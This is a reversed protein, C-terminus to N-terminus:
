LTGTGAGSRPLQSPPAEPRSDTCRIRSAHRALQGKEHRGDCPAPREIKTPWHASLGKTPGRPAYKRVSGIPADKSPRYLFDTERYYAALSDLFLQAVGLLDLGAIVTGGVRRLQVQH